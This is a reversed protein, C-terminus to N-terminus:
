LSISFVAHLHQLYVRNLQFLKSANSTPTDPQESFRINGGDADLSEIFERAPEKGDETSYFEIIYEM